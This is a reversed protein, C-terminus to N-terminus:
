GNFINQTIIKIFNYFMLNIKSFIVLNAIINKQCKKNDFKFILQNNFNRNVHIKQTLWKVYILIPVNLYLIFITFLISM